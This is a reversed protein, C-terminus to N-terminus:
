RPGSMGAVVIVLASPRPAGIAPDDADSALAFFRETNRVRSAPGGGAAVRPGGSRCM